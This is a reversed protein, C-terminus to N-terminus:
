EKREKRGVLLKRLMEEPDTVPISCQQGSCIYATAKGDAMVLDRTFPAADSVATGSEGSPLCLVTVSPLYNAHLVTIMNQMDGSGPRGVLVIEQSPGTALDLGCLFFAHASPSRAVGNIFSGSLDSAMKEYGADGTLRSLRLLNSFAISNCSPYAGDHIEKGRVILPEPSESATFFGGKEKDWFRTVLTRNLEIASSLFRIDFTTEYLEILAFIVSAYDGAFGPIGADGSFYRHFLGGQSDHMRSLVFEMADRATDLYRPEDFARSAQALAAIVLGNWDALIKGDRSPRPRNLRVSFLRQRISKLRAELEPERLGLSAAVTGLPVVRSLINMGKGHEPSQFNGEKTAGYILSAILADEPGLAQDMEAVTWLYFRGEGGPSDADEGSYFAGEPSSLDRLVYAITAEATQRYSQRRTAQYAETYAMILLAQDYLMKEFHPVNWKADTAYRHFGGGLQDCIGGGQMADLTKEAM